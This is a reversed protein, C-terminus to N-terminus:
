SPFVRRWRKSLRCRCRKAALRCCSFTRTEIFNAANRWRSRASFNSGTASGVLERLRRASDESVAILASSLNIARRIYFKGFRNQRVYYFDFDGARFPVITKLGFIKALVIFFSERYLSANSGVHVYVLEPARRVCKGVIKLLSQFALNVKSFKGFDEAQSAIYDFEFDDILSSQLLEKTLTPIGGRTKTLHMGVMLVRRKRRAIEPVGAFKKPLFIDTM